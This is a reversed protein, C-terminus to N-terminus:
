PGSQQDISAGQQVLVPIVQPHGNLVAVALAHRDNSHCWTPDAGQPTRLSLVQYVTNATQSSSASQGDQVQDLLQQVISCQGRGPGLEKMLQADKAQLQPSQM